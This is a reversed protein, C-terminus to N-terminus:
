WGVLRRFHTRGAREEKSLSAWHRLAIVWVTIASIFLAAVLTFLLWDLVGFGLFLGM